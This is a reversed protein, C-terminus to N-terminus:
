QSVKNSHLHNNNNQHVKQINISIAKTSSQHPDIREDSKDNNNNNTNNFNLYPPPYINKSKLNDLKADIDTEM